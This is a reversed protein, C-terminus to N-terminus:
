AHRRCKAYGGSGFGRGPEEGKDTAGEEEQAPAPSALCPTRRAGRTISPTSSISSISLAVALTAGVAETFVDRPALAYM